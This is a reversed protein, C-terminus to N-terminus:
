DLELRIKGYKGASKEFHMQLERMDDYGAAEAWDLIEVCSDIVDASIGKYYKGGIKIAAYVASDEGERGNQFVIIEGPSFIEGTLMEKFTKKTAAAKLLEKEDTTSSQLLKM